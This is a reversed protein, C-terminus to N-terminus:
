PKPLPELEVDLLKREGSALRPVPHTSNLADTYIWGKYGNATVLVLLDSNIPVAMQFKGDLTRASGGGSGDDISIWQVWATGLSKESLKDKVAGTLIGGRPRMRITVNPSLNVATVKVQQGPSQNEISYGDGEDIAFLAYSGFAVNGIEFEGYTNAPFQCNITTSSGSKM